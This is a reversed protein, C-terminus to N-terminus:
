VNIHWVDGNTCIKAIKHVSSTPREIVLLESAFDRSPQGVELPGHPRDRLGTLATSRLPDGEPVLLVHRNGRKGDSSRGNSSRRRQKHLCTGAATRRGPASARSRRSTPRGYGLRPTAVRDLSPGISTSTLQQAGCGAGGDM